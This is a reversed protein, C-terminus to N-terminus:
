DSDHLPTAMEPVNSEFDPREVAGRAGLFFGFAGELHLLVTFGDDRQQFLMYKETV